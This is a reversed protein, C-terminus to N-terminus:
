AAEEEDLIVIRRGTKDTHVLQGRHRGKTAELGVFFCVGKRTSDWVQNPRLVLVKDDM